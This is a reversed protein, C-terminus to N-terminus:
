LKAEQPLLNKKSKSNVIKYQNNGGFTFSGENKELFNIQFKRGDDATNWRM